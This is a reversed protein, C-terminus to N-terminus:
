FLIGLFFFFKQILQSFCICALMYIFLSSALPQTYSYFCDLSRVQAYTTNNLQLMLHLWTNMLIETM